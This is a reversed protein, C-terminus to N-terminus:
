GARAARLKDAKQGLAPKRFLWGELPLAALHPVSADTLRAKHLLLYRLNPPAGAVLKAVFADGVEASELTLALLAPFRAFTAGSADTPEKGKITLRQLRPLSALSAIGEDTVGGGCLYMVELARNSRGITALLADSAKAYLSLLRLGPMGHLHALLDKVVSVDLSLHELATTRSLVKTLKPSRWPGIVQLATLGAANALGDLVPGALDCQSCAFKRLGTLRSLFSWAGPEIAKKQTPYPAYQLHSLSLEWLREPNPLAALGAGTMPMMSLSGLSPLTSLVDATLADDWPLFSAQLTRLRTLGRLTEARVAGATAVQLTLGVLRAELARLRPLHEAEVDAFSLDWGTAALRTLRDDDLGYASACLHKVQTLEHVRALAADLAAAGGFTLTLTDGILYGHDHPLWPFRVIPDTM